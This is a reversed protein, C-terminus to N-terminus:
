TPIFEMKFQTETDQTKQFKLKEYFQIARPNNKHVMLTIKLNEKESKQILKEFIDTGIGKGTWQPLLQVGGIHIQTISEELRLRGVVEGDVVVLSTQDIKPLFEEVYLQYHEAKQNETFIQEQTELHSMGIQTIQYLLPLDDITAQVLEIKKIEM